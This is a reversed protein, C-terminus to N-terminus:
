KKKSFDLVIQGLYGVAFAVAGVFVMIVAIVTM